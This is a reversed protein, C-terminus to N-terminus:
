SSQQLERIREAVNRYDINRAYVELFSKLAAARDGAMEYAAGVEFLLALSSEADVGPSDLATQYWKVALEPMGKELFCSALLSCCQVVHSYDQASQALQHVKQFEGIAEDYLAMEKFAVGMNYHTELDETAAPEGVDEKFEAFVEDLFRAGPTVPAASKSRTPGLEQELDGALSAFRDGPAGSPAQSAQAAAPAEELSLEFPSAAPVSGSSQFMEDLAIEPEQEAAAAEPQPAALEPSPEAVDPAQAEFRATVAPSDASAALEAPAESVIVQGGSELASSGPQQFVGLREEYSPIAPHDPFQQRLRDLAASAEANMGAQLYFEVEEAISDASVTAAAASGSESLAAWEMSLDIERVQSQESAAEAAAVPAAESWDEPATPEVVHTTGGEQAKQQFGIVLEGYRAAREGDGMKIYAETLSEACQAAKQYQQTQEYLTLLQEYLSVNGPVEVLGKELTEIAREIQHYTRYLEAETLWNAVLEQERPPLTEALAEAAFSAVEAAMLPTPEPRAESSEVGGLRAEVQRLLRQHELHDPELAVLEAYVERAKDLQEAAVYAHALLEATERGEGIEGARRYVSWLLELGGVNSRDAKLVKQLGEILVAFAGQAQLREAAERYLAVAKDGEGKGCLDDAVLALAAFDDHTEFLQRAILNARELDGAQRYAHFLTNLAAKSAGLSDLSELAAIAKAADGQQLYVRGRLVQAERNSSDLKLLTALTAIAEAPENIDLFREAASLYTAVAEGPKGTEAYLEAMRRQLRPNNMDLLLIKEFVERAKALEGRRMFIEVAQLYHTRADRMLGQMSYLEGLKTLAPLAEADLKTVRKYVAIARPVFGGEVSKEALDYFCKIAEDNRGARVYLDGVTNLTMLDRPDRKLIKKYEDIAAALKGQLVYKEGTQLIKAKNFGLRLAM